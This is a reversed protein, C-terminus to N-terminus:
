EFVTRECLVEYNKGDSIICVDGDKDTRYVDTRMRKLRRLVANGPFASNETQSVSIVATEPSVVNLFARSCSTLGGHHGVKLIDADIKAGSNLIDIESYYEADAAFLFSVKGYELRLVASTNNLNRYESHVPAAAVCKVDGTLVKTGSKLYSVKCGNKKLATLMKKYTATTHAAQPMFFKGVKFKKLIDSMSGIHDAHPHTAIVYDLKKVGSKKLSGVLEKAFDSRGSDILMCKGGPLKIFICDAQGCEFFRVNLLNRESLSVTKRSRGYIIEAKTSKVTAVAIILLLIVVAAKKM